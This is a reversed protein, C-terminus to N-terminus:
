PWQRGLEMESSRNEFGVKGGRDRGGERLSRGGERVIIANERLIFVNYIQSAAFKRNTVTPKHTARIYFAQNSSM